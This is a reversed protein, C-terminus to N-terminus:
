YDRMNNRSAIMVIQQELRTNTEDQKKKKSHSDNMQCTHNVYRPLNLTNDSSQQNWSETDM